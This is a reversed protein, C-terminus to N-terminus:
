QKTILQGTQEEKTAGKLKAAMVKSEPQLAVCVEYVKRAESFRKNARLCMGRLDLFSAMEDMPNMSKLFRESGFKEPEWAYMGQTYHEDPHSLMGGNTSEINFREKGDASEWRAFLHKRTPVLFLPYGLKRGVAVMLVPLSACTGTHPPLLLGNLFLDKSNAFFSEMPEDNTRNRSYDVGLDQKIVTVLMQMRYFGEINRFRAPDRRYMYLCRETEFQVRSAWQDLTSLCDQIKLNEAGPLDTACILNTEVIGGRALEEPKMQILENLTAFRPASQAPAKLESVPASYKVFVAAGVSAVLLSVLGAKLHLRRRGTTAARTSKLLEQRKKRGSMCSRNFCAAAKM